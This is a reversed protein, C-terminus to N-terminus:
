RHASSTLAQTVGRLVDTQDDKSMSALPLDVKGGSMSRLQIITNGRFLSLNMVGKVHWEGGRLVREKSWRRIRVEHDEIVVRFRLTLPVWALWMLGALVGIIRPGVGSGPLVFPGVALLPWLVLRVAMRRVNSRYVMM